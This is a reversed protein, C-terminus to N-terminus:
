HYVSPIFKVPSFRLVRPFVQGLAVNDVVFGLHVSGPYGLTLDLDRAAIISDKSIACLFVTILTDTYVKCRLMVSFCIKAMMESNYINPFYVFM